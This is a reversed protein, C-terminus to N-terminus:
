RKFPASFTNLYQESVAAEVAKFSLSTTTESRMHTMALGQYGCPHIMSFPSLDMTINLAFGHYTVQIKGSRKSRLGLSAIKKNNVYVGPRNSDTYGKINWQNLISLILAELSHVFEPASCNLRSLNVIPYGILQGPGHYTIDGGRDTTIVTYELSQPPTKKAARVGLTYVPEHQLLWLEDPKNPSHLKQMVRQQMAQWTPQYPMLGLHKILVPITHTIVTGM